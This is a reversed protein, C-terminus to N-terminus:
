NEAALEGRERVPVRVLYAALRAALLVALSSMVLGAGFGVSIVGHAAPAHALGHFLMLVSLVAIVVPSKGGWVLAAAAIPLSALVLGEVVMVPLGLGWLLAGAM